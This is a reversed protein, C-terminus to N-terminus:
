KERPELLLEAEKLLVHANVWDAWVSGQGVTSSWEEIPANLLERVAVGVDAVAERHQAKADFPAEAMAQILRVSAVRAVNQNETGLSQQCWHMAQSHNGNRYSYLALSFEAWARLNSSRNPAAAETLSNEVVQSLQDVADMTAADAPRLLCVKVIQEAVVPHRTKGFRQIAISRLREYRNWDEAQCAAAVAPLLNRSVIDTDSSDVSSFSEVLLSFCRSAEPWRRHSIHWNGLSGFLNAAELSSPIHSEPIRAAMKDADEMREYMILVSAQACLERAEAGERLRAEAARSQEAVSRLLAQERRATKERLFLITSTGFGVALALFLAAGATFAMKNRRFLKSFRYVRSSPRAGVPEDQLHHMVDSALSHATNYRDKPEGQVCKLVIADLDGLLAKAMARPKMKRAQALERRASEDAAAYCLSPAVPQRTEPGGSSFPPSGAILEGLLVGLSFIDSRTDVGAGNQLAQEPSMYDPTGLVYRSVGDSDAEARGTAKAIGFDIVKPLATGDHDAVLINSPKIDRHIVGKQHAHQIAHCVKVFLELRQRITLQHRDCFETIREGSVWQMVFYPRGTTTAGADLVRAIGPHDMMALSQREEEFRRCVEVHDLGVRILKLAVHRRLPIEQEALYVVGCGGEGLRRILRYKGIRLGIEDEGHIEGDEGETVESEPDCADFPIFDFFKESDDDFELLRELRKKLEADDRCAWELLFHRDERQPIECLNEFLFKEICKKEDANM